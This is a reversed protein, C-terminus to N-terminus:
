LMALRESRFDDLTRSSPKIGAEIRRMAARMSEKDPKKPTQYDTVTITVIDGADPPLVVIGKLASSKVEKTVKMRNRM